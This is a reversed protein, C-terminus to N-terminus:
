LLGEAQMAAKTASRETVRSWFALIQPWQKLDIGVFNSWNVVVFLYADAVTFKNNILYQRGDNLLNNLYDFKKAVNKIAQKKKDESAQNDFLPGFAKHLESSVYNLYEHLRARAITGVKPALEAQPYQDAIYQLISAGETLVEGSALQLAPVYAKPNTEKYNHGHETLGTDTDVRELEVTQGLEHLVIHTAMSCAGPKYFLKM